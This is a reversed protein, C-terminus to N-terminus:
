SDAAHSLAPRAGMRAAARGNMVADKRDRNM